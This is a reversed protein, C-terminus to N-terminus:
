RLMNKLRGILVNAEDAGMAKTLSNGYGELLDKLDARSSAKELKLTFFFSKIGLADVITINMFDKAHRFRTFEDQHEFSEDTKQTTVDLKTDVKADSLKILSLALLQELFDEPAHLKQAEERLLFEPQVGDTLILMCRLRPPIRLKKNRMEDLGTETKMYINGASM